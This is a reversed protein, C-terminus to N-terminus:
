ASSPMRSTSLDRPSPSTYLLCSGMLRGSVILRYPNQLDDRDNVISAKVDMGSQNITQAIKSLTSGEESVYILKEGEEKSVFRIYGVGAKTRDMDPFGNTISAANEPLKEVEIDWSGTPTVGTTPVGTVTEQDSSNLVLDKYGSRNGIEGVSLHIGKVKTELDNILNLRSEKFKKSLEMNKLRDRICMESGM